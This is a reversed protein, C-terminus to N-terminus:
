SELERVNGGGDETKAVSRQGIGRGRFSTTRIPIRFEKPTSRVVTASIELHISVYRIVAFV